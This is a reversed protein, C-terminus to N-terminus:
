KATTKREARKTAVRCSGTYWRSYIHTRDDRHAIIRNAIKAIIPAVEKAGIEHKVAELGALMGNHFSVRIDEERKRDRVKDNVKIKAVSAKKSKKNM